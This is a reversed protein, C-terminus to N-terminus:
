LFKYKLRLYFMRGRPDGFAADYGTQFNQETRSSPPDKDLVNKIGLATEFNKFPKWSALLDYTVYADVMRVAPYSASVDAVPNTYDEYGGTYNQMLSANFNGVTYSLTLMHRWKPSPGFDKYKGLDSVESTDAYQYGHKTFRTGDLAIGFTGADAIRYKWTLNLDVGAAFFKAANIYPLYAYAMPFNPNTSGQKLKGCANNVGCDLYSQYGDPYDAPDYRYIYNAYKVPDGFVTQESLTNIADRVKIDFYDASASFSSSPAYVLGLSFQTSKEPKLNKDGQSATVQQINCEDQLAGVPNVTNTIAVGGPCRIPDNFNANTNNGETFPRLNEYLTPARFGGALSGRVLFEKSPQFRLGLKPSLHDFSVGFDNKYNDYRAALQAELTKTLPVSAETFLSAVKRGGSVSPIPGAGGVQDGSALVPMSIQELNEKRYSGGFALGMMGAPLQFVERSVRFDITDATSKATQELSHLLASDLAAQSTADQPGFVNIQGSAVLPTLAAYSYQGSGFAVQGNFEAHTYAVEYDWDHFVGKAGIVERQAKNDTIDSRGGGAVTRWTGSISGTPTVAMDNQLVTASSLVTGDPMIYGSPLTMGKPLTVSAPYFRGSTPYVMTKTYPAPSYTAVVHDKTEMFEGFLENDGNLKYTGRAVINDHSAPPLLDIFKVYDTGCSKSSGVQVLGFAPADCGTYRLPNVGTYSNGRTDTFNLNPIGNRTSAKNIGLDPRVATNAFARDAAKLQDDVEHYASLMINFGQQNLDGYGVLASYNESGGGKGKTYTNYTSVEAGQYDKRLIFNIVGAVADAGYIASAGDRLVEIREVAALPISNLDIVANGFGYDAVRRGNLLVLTYKPGLARLNATSAVGTAGVNQATTNGGFNSPIANVLDQATTAGTRDIEERSLVTVPLAGETAVRAISSGTITVRETAQGSNQAYVPVAVTAAAAVAQGVLVSLLRRKQM